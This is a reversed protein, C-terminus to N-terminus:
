FASTVSPDNGEASGARKGPSLPLWDRLVAEDIPFSHREPDSVWSPLVVPPLPYQDLRDSMRRSSRRDDRSQSAWHRWLYERVDSELRKVDRSRCCESYTRRGDRNSRCACPQAPATQGLRSYHPSLEPHRVYRHVRKLILAVVLVAILLGGALVSANFLFSNLTSGGSM